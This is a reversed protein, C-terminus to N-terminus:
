ILKWIEEMVLGFSDKKECNTSIIKETKGSHIKLVAEIKNNIEEYTMEPKRNIAIEPPVVLKILLDPGNIYASKYIEYEWESIKKMINNSSSYKTLLPGDSYGSVEIQPYRDVLVLLGNNRAKTIKKLKKKKEQALTVAWIIKCYSYLYSKLSVKGGSNIEKEVRHGVGKGGIKKAVYKMPKRLLSSSGDGSGLYTSYVDIKKNFEKKVYKLTTSKGAGDSGLFAIVTGGAPSIRRNAVTSNLGLRRKIGGVLWFIERKTRNIYSTIKNYSSYSKMSKRLFRQLKLLQRKKVLNESLLFNIEESISKETLKEAVNKVESIDCRNKLWKLELIDDNGIKKSFDRWRLKLAMRTLLLFLEDASNSCYVNFDQCQIKERNKLFYETWPVTYGKLHNEGLSLRYHLHLHWIKAEEKDFGIYDEIANYQMLPTARFRKLGSESLVKELLSRQNPNFLVDLDTDGEISESLHENSKWHCYEINYKDFNEFMIKISKLM